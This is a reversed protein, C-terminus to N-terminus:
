ASPRSPFCVPTDPQGRYRGRGLGTFSYSAHTDGRRLVERVQGYRGPVGWAEQTAGRSFQSQFNKEAEPFFEYIRTWWYLDKIPIARCPHEFKPDDYLIPYKELQVIPIFGNAKGLMKDMDVQCSMAIDCRLEGDNRTECCKPWLLYRGYHHTAKVDIRLGRYVLDYGGDFTESLQEKKVDFFKLGTLEGAAELDESWPYKDVHNVTINNKHRQASIYEIYKWSASLDFTRKNGYHYSNPIEMSTSKSSAKM